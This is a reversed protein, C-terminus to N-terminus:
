QEGGILKSRIGEIIEESTRTEFAPKKLLDVYRKDLSALHKLGDTVYIRYM